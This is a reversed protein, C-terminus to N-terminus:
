VTVHNLDLIYQWWNNAIGNTRGGTKPLHKLWWTHHARIEGNGWEACNVQRNVGKFNPFNYWDDCYSTVYRPNGWDYDKESNPAFHVSGVEAQGPATKDYRIFKRWLNAPTTSREFVKELTSEVRHNFAELMEGVGREYSFGMIAFRRPCKATGLIPASNCFFAGYGGMTSEYFGAYPFAFVWVEDIEGTSVRQLLNHTNIFDQYNVTDPNHAPAAGSMVQLYAEVTYRFGDVKVPFANIEVRQVIQYRGLGSSAELIDAIYASVLDDPRKWGLHQSLKVGNAADVLPDYIVLLVRPTVVVAPEPTTSPEPQPTPTTQAPTSGGFLAKLFALLAALLGGSSNRM